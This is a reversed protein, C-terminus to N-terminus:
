KIIGLSRNTKEISKWKDEEIELMARIADVNEPVVDAEQHVVQFWRVKRGEVNVSDKVVAIEYMDYRSRCYDRFKEIIMSTSPYEKMDLLIVRTQKEFADLVEELSAERKMEVELIHTHALTTPIVIAM